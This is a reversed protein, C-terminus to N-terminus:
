LRRKRTSAVVWKSGRQLARSLERRGAPPFIAALVLGLFFVLTLIVELSREAVISLLMLILFIPLAMYVVLIRRGGTRVAIYLSVIALPVLILMAISAWRYAMVSALIILFVLGIFDVISVLRGFEIRLAGMSIQAFLLGLVIGLAVGGALWFLESSVLMDGLTPAPESISLDAGLNKLPGSFKMATLWVDGEFLESIRRDIAELDEKKVRFRVPREITGTFSALTLPQPIDEERVQGDSIAFIAIDAEGSAMASIRLPFYLSSSRFRYVIPEISRPEPGVEILDLVFYAVGDEVYTDVYYALKSSEIREDGMREQLFLNAWVEFEESDSVRAVTIDHAGIKEHFVIEVGDVSEGRYRTAAPGRARLLQEVAEFSSFNAKEILDPQSPLPLVELVTTRADAYADTSLILVEQQGNWAVIAKQGPGYVSVDALAVMGRDASVPLSMSSIILAFLVLPALSKTTM